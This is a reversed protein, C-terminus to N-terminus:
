QLFYISLTSNLIASDLHLRSDSILTKNNKLDLIIKISLYDVPLVM